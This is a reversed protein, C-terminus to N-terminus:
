CMLHDVLMRLRHHQRRSVVRASKPVLLLGNEDSTESDEEQGASQGQVRAVERALDELRKSVAVNESLVGAKADPVPACIESFSESEVTAQRRPLEKTVLKQVRIPKAVM